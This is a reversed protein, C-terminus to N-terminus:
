STDTSVKSPHTDFEGDGPPNWLAPDLLSLECLEGGRSSAMEKRWSTECYTIRVEGTLLVHLLLDMNPPPSKDSRKTLADAAMHGSNVWFVKSGIRRLIETM